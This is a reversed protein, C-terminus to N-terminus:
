EKASKLFYGPVLYGCIIAACVILAIYENSVFTAAVSFIFFSIGGLILPKFKILLGSATTALGAILLMIAPPDIGLQFCLFGGIFFAAASVIWLKKLYGELHSYVKKDKNISRLIFFQAIFGIVIFIVWNILSYIGMLNYAESGKLVALIIYNSLSALALIWGWLLFIKASERYNMRFNSIAKNIIDFSDQPTLQNTDM